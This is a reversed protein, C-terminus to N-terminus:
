KWIKNNLSIHFKASESLFGSNPEPEEEALLIGEEIENMVHEFVSSVLSYKKRQWFVSIFKTEIIKTKNKNTWKDVRDM